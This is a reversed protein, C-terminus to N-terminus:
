ALEEGNLIKLSEQLSEIEEKRRAVRDEYSVGADVCSPKLKDYYALSADLEKQNGELDKKAVTLAQESDQKKATKHEIDKNKSEKDVKSDGMFTDYEKQASEEAAKTESELRAFDSEIVELMGVIGGSEAGMGKYPTDFVEPAEPDQQVFATADGAKSYFEKLVTIAQATATEAAQADSITEANKAKEKQRLETAEAMKEDLESVEKSTETIDEALKAIQASLQDISAHLTEVAETKEKRTKENTSLETDCWGKHESEENAEEMLKVILDQIMKRVKGFPDAQARQAIAMLVRSNLETARSSLFAAAREYSRSEATMRLQAFAVGTQLMSPLHKDANGSVAGGAIIEIAKNIAELEESRLQQRAEFDTAKQDCTASLDATYKKDAAMADSTDNLDSEAAAKDEINKAKQETKSTVDSKAQESQATLDQMLLEYVNKKGSEEKELTTLEAVFKDELKSLMEVVGSSQFEYGNAEPAAEELDEGDQMFAAIARKTDEPMMTMSQLQLFSAAAQAKDGSQKKLVQVARGLADISESYDKHTKDYTAKEGKRVDTAAKMDADQTAIDEELDAMEKALRDVNAANKEIDAKLVEIKEEAEKILRTKETTADDCFQKYAAFQVQEAHKEEKGKTLMGEMLQIVKQVPTVSSADATVALLGLLALVRPFQM